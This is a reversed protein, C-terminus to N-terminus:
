SRAFEGFLEQAKTDYVIKAAEITNFYGLNIRKCNFRISAVWKKKSTNWSVGKAGSKNCKSLVSNAMNQSRTAERLNKLKDNFSDTDIHDVLGNPPRGHVILWIIYTRCYTRNKYSVLNRKTSRAVVLKKSNATYRYMLGTEPDYEFAKRAEEASIKLEHPIFRYGM